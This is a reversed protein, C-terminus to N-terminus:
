WSGDSDDAASGFALWFEERLSLLFYLPFLSSFLLFLSSFFLCSLSCLGYGEGEVVKVMSWCWLCGKRWRSWGQM